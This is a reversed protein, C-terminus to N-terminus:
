GIDWSQSGATPSVYDNTELTPNLPANDSEAQLVAQGPPGYDDQDGTAVTPPTTTWDTGAPDLADDYTAGLDVGADIVAAGEALTYDNNPGDTFSPDGETGNAEQSIPGAQLQALTKDGDSWYVSMAGSDYYYRNYDM